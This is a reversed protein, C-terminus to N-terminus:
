IIGMWQMCLEESVNLVVQKNVDPAAEENRVICNQCGLVAVLEGNIELVPWVKREWIPISNKQFFLKLEKRKLNDKKEISRINVNSYGFLVNFVFSFFNDENSKVFKILQSFSEFQHYFAQPEKEFFYLRNKYVRLTGAQLEYSFNHNQSQSFQEISSKIWQYHVHSLVINPSYLKLWYRIINKQKKWSEDDCFKITLYHVKHSCSKLEQDAYIDLLATAEQMNQAARFLAVEAHPWISELDPLVKHRVVNRKYTTDFNTTDTVFKLNNAAAYQEMDSYPVSLLPRSHNVEIANNTMLRRNVPMAALGNVGSGRFLNLLFTEAQDKRHHGTLLYVTSKTEVSFTNIYDLIAQYRLTRAVAEVGKRATSEVKVQLGVFEISNETCVQECHKAWEKSDPQLNHDVYIAVLRTSLSSKQLNQKIAHLLVTSDLGGSFSIFIVDANDISSLFNIISQNVSSDFDYDSPLM